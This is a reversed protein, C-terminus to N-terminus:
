RLGTRQPLKDPRNRMRCKSLRETPSEFRERDLGTQLSGACAPRQDCGGILIRARVAPSRQSTPFRDFGIGLFSFKRLQSM